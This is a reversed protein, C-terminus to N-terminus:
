WELIGALLRDGEPDDVALPVPHRTIDVRLHLSRRRASRVLRTWSIEDSMSRLIERLESRGIPYGSRWEAVLDVWADERRAVGSSDLRTARERVIVLEGVAIETVVRLVEATPNVVITFGAPRLTDAAWEGAGPPVFVLHPWREPLQNGYSGVVDYGSVTAEIGTSQLLESLRKAEGSLEIVDPGTVAGVSGSEPVYVFLGRGLRRARGSGVLRNLATAALGPRVDAHRALEASSARELQELAAAVRGSPSLVSM